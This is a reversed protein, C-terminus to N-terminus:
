QKDEVNLESDDDLGYPINITKKDGHWWKSGWKHHRCGRYHGLHIQHFCWCPRTCWGPPGPCQSCAAWIIRSPHSGCFTQHLCKAWKLPAAELFLVSWCVLPWCAASELRAVSPSHSLYLVFTNIFLCTNWLNLNTRFRDRGLGQSTLHTHAALQILNSSGKKVTVDRGNPFLQCRICKLRKAVPHDMELPTIFLVTAPHACASDCM